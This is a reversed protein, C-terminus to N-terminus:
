VVSKRDTEGCRANPWTASRVSWGGRLGGWPGAGRTGRRGPARCRRDAVGRSSSGPFGLAVLAPLAVAGVTRWEEPPAGAFDDVIWGPGGPNYVPPATPLAGRMCGRLHEQGQAVLVIVNPDTLRTQVYQEQRPSADAAKRWFGPSYGEYEIRKTEGIAVMHPIDAAIARRIEM